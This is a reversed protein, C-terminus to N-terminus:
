KVPIFKLVFGLFRKSMRLLFMFIKKLLEWSKSGFNVFAVGAFGIELM